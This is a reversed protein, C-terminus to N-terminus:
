RLAESLATRTGIERQRMGSTEEAPRPVPQVAGDGRHPQGAPGAGEGVQSAAPISLRYDLKGFVPAAGGSNASNWLRLGDDSLDCDAASNKKEHAKERITRYVIRIQERSTERLQAVQERHANTEDVAAQAAQQAQAKDAACTSSAHKDGLTYGIGVLSLGLVVTVAVPWLKTVWWM